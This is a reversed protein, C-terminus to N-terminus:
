LLFPKNKVFVVLKFSNKAEIIELVLWFLNLILKAYLLSIHTKIFSITSFFPNKWLRVDWRKALNRVLNAKVKPNDCVMLVLLFMLNLGFGAIKCFAQQVIYKIWAKLIFKHIHSVKHPVAWYKM